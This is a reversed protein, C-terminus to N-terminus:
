AQRLGSMISDIAASRGGIGEFFDCLRRTCSVIDYEEVARLRAERAYERCLEPNNIMELAITTLAEVDELPALRGHKGDEIYEEVPPTASGLIACGSAMAQLLTPSPIFRASLHIHLSSANYIGALQDMAPLGVFAFRSLDYQDRSLVWRAFSQGETYALEHGYRTQEAGVVLFLADPRAEAIRKAVQMFIDFGRVSELGRSVYTIIPTSQEITRDGIKTPRPRPQFLNCDVGEPLVRIKSRYEQPAMALQTHSPTYAVDCARLQLLTLAHYTSHFLRVLEPPPFAERLIMEPGWFDGPWLEFYGVFPCAYLNRLYLFTGYSVHGVVLDPQLEPLGRLGRYVAGLHEMLGTLSDPNTFVEPSPVDDKLRYNIHTFPLDKLKTTDVSTLFVCPWKLEVAAYHAVVGFQAPFNPHIFLTRM